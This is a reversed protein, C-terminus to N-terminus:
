GGGGSGRRRNGGSEGPDIDLIDCRTLGSDYRRLYGASKVELGRGRVDTAYRALFADIYYRDIPQGRDFGYRQSLPRTRRLAGM